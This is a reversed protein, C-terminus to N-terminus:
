FQKIREVILPAISVQHIKPIRKEWPLYISDTIWVELIRKAKKLKQIAGGALVGHTAMVIIEKCGTREAEKETAAITGATSIEDERIFVTQGTLDCDAGESETVDHEPHNKRFNVVPIGLLAAFEKTLEDRGIDPSLASAKQLNRQRAIEAFLANTCIVDVNAGANRFYDVTIAAHPDCLIVDTAGAQVTTQAVFEAMIAEGGSCDREQRRFGMFPMIVVIRAPKCKQIAHLPGWLDFYTSPAFECTSQIFFITKGPISDTNMLRYWPEGDAFREVDIEALPVALLNSVETALKFSARGCFIIPEHQM